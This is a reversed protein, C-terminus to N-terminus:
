CTNCVPTAMYYPKSCTTCDCPIKQFGSLDQFTFLTPSINSFKVSNGLCKPLEEKCSAYKQSLEM